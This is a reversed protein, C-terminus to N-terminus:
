RELEARSPHLGLRQLRLLDARPAGGMEGGLLHPRRSGLSPPGPGPQSCSRARPGPALLGQSPRAPRVSRGEWSAHSDAKPLSKGLPLPWARVLHMPLPYFGRGLETRGAGYGRGRRAQAEREEAM